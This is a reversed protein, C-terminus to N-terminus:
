AHPRTPLTDDFSEDIGPWPTARRWPPVPTEGDALVAVDVVVATINDRGRVALARAVLESAASQPNDVSALLDRIQDDALEGTLGDTCALYRDGVQVPIVQVDPESDGVSSIARTVVNRHPHTRAEFATIAGSDVLEQVASHDTTLQELVGARLRYTRSDGVNVVGVAPVGDLTAVGLGSVTAGGSLESPAFFEVVALRASRVVQRLDDETVCPRGVLQAFAGVVLAAAVDGASHGGMGDAVLFLPPEALFADENHRRVAGTDTAAGWQGSFPVPVPQTM